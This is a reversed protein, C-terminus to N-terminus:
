VEEVIVQSANFMARALDAVLDADYVTEGNDRGYYLQTFDAMCYGDYLSDFAVLKRVLAECSTAAITTPTTLYHHPDNIRLRVTCSEASLGTRPVGGTNIMELAALDADSRLETMRTDFVDFDFEENKRLMQMSLDYVADAAGDARARSESIFEKDSSDTVEGFILLNNLYRSKCEYLWYAAEYDSLGTPATLSDVILQYQLFKM